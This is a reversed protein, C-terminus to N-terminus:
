GNLLLKSATTISTSYQYVTGVSGTYMKTGDTSFSLDKAVTAQTAVSFSISAYSATSLDYATSLNYQYVANSIFGVVFLKTGDSNIVVGGPSTDQSAVSLSKSAYSGTSLDWATSLTYQYVSDNTGGVMYMETGDASFALGMPLTDESAVSLSVSDYSATSVDWATSLSYQFVTDATSGVIYMKTGDSKFRIGRPGTEQTAVSFSKSAYSATSVDFATSLDYQYVTRNTTGVAYMKTGDYSFTFGETASSDQTAVSFSVSDYSANQLRYGLASLAGFALGAEISTVTTSLSGDAQLYVTSNTTTVKSTANESIGGVLMVEGTAANAIDEEAIGVFKPAPLANSSPMQYVTAVGFNSNDVNRQPVIVKVEDPDYVAVMCREAASTDLGSVSFGSSTVTISTGSVSCVYAVPDDNADEVVIIARQTIPDYVCGYNDSRVAAIRVATGTTLATGSAKITIAYPYFSDGADRYAVVFQNTDTDYAATPFDTQASEFTIETGFTFSTNNQTAAIANGYNSNGADRYFVVVVDEDPDYQINPNLTNGANFNNAGGWNLSGANNATAAYLYGFGSNAVGQVAVVFREAGSNFCVSTYGANNAYFNETHEVTITTGSVSLLANRGWTTAKFTVCVRDTPPSYACSIYITNDSWFVTPTGFSISTGSVTGVVATGYGSNGNDQYAILVKDNETMYTASIHTTNASEFTATTGSSEAVAAVVSVTGDSNLIVTDGNSIAGSATFTAKKGSAGAPLLDSLNSM